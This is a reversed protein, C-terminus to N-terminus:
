EEDKESELFLGFNLSIMPQTAYTLDFGLFGLSFAFLLGGKIQLKTFSNFNIFIPRAERLEQFPSNIVDQYLGSTDKIAKFHGFLREYQIGFYGLIRKNFQNSANLGFAYSTLDLSVGRYMRHLAFHFNLNKSKDFEFLRFWHDFRQNLAISFFVFSEGQIPITLFRFRFENRLPTEFILQLIPLGIMLDLHLGEPYAITKYFSDPYIHNQPAAFIPYSSGGFITPQKNPKYLKKLVENERIQATLTASTDYFGEPVEADFWKHEDPILMSSFGFNLSLRYKSNLNSTGYLFNNLSQELSTLLPKVYGELNKSTFLVFNRSVIIDKADLNSFNFAWFVVLAIKLGKAVTFNKFFYFFLTIFTKNCM